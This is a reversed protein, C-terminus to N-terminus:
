MKEQDHHSVSSPKLLATRIMIVVAHPLCSSSLRSQFHNCSDSHSTTPDWYLSNPYSILSLSKSFIRYDEGVRSGLVQSSVPLQLGSLPKYPFGIHETKSMNFQLHRHFMQLVIGQLCIVRPDPLWSSCQPQHLGKLPWWFVPQLCPNPLTPHDLVIPLPFSSSYFRSFLTNLLSLCYVSGHHVGFHLSQPIPPVLLFTRHIM